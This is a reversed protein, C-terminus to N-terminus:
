VCHEMKSNLKMKELTLNKLLVELLSMESVGVHLWGRQKSFVKSHFTKFNLFSGGTNPKNTKNTKKAFPAQCIWGLKIFPKHGESILSQDFNSNMACIWGNYRHIQRPCFPTQSDVWLQEVEKSGPLLVWPTQIFSAIWSETILGSTRGRGLPIQLGRAALPWFEWQRWSSNFCLRGGFSSFLLARSSIAM